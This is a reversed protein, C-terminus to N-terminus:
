QAVIQVPVTTEAVRNSQQDTVSLKLVYRGIPLNAPLKTKKVIFFDHRRNRSHDVISDSKESWVNLGTETYLVAEHSLKTEWVKKDNVQSAFNEVECYIIFPHDKAGAFRAPTIPEYVGFGDVRTCLAATPLSLDAQARLRDSMEVLPRIKRSLMQNADLKTGSRFNSLADLVATLIERDEASMSAISAMHPVREGRVFQLLQYDLQSPLDKPNERIKAALQQLLQDSDQSAAQGPGMQGPVDEGEPVIAPVDNAKKPNLLAVQNSATAAAGASQDAPAAQKDEGAWQVESDAKATEAPKAANSPPVKRSQREKLKPELDRSYAAMKDALSNPAPKEAVATAQRDTAGAEAPDTSVAQQNIRAPPLQSTQRSSSCGVVAALALSAILRRPSRM